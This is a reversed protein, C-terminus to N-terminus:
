SDARGSDTRHSGVRGDPAPLGAPVATEIEAHHIGGGWLTLHGRFRTLEVAPKDGFLGPLYSHGCVRGVSLNMVRLVQNGAAPKLGPRAPRRDGTDSRRRHGRGCRFGEHLAQGRRDQRGGSLPVLVRAPRPLRRRLIRGPHGAPVRLLLPLLRARSDRPGFGYELNLLDTAERSAYRNHKDIWWTLPNLNEDILEGRFTVAPEAGKVHEDMWRSECRGRGYRFLRLVPARSVGGFRIARGQFIVLRRFAVGNVGSDLGPLRERIEAALEPTLREDADVRLVWDTDADLRTLAWNFQESYNVWARQLVRAGHERAIRVTEDTSFSDVVMVADAIGRLSSLCRPLHRAENLTMVIAALKM